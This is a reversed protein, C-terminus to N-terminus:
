KLVEMLAKAKNVTEEFEQQPISDYVIGAGAQVYACNDKAVITRIALAMDMDGTYSIYGVTGAYIHRRITELEDIIQMARIKPAGSVTGAPFCWPLADFCTMGERLEGVVESVLHMVHSYKEIEMFKRLSVSGIESVFGLDNRGLDVLMLHEAREKENLLLERAVEEDQKKTAGRPRTGAIPNTTVIKEKVSMVSEPSSGIVQYSGFDVYYMYPSPNSIRLKRYLDFTDGHFKTEFRQSLVVQFIDGDRIYQKAREVLEMYEEKEMNTTVVGDVQVSIARPQSTAYLESEIKLLQQTIEEYSAVDDKRYLYVVSAKQLEHDFVVVIQYVMMHAESIHLDDEIGEGITEYQRVVDYGIYGVAGGIFPLDTEVEVARIVEQLVDLMKGKRTTGKKGEHVEIIGKKSIVEVSPNMGIFSYRGKEEKKLSSELLFKKTGSLRYYMGIPTLEDGAIDRIVLFDKKAEKLEMFQEKTINMKM